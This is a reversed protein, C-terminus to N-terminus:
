RGFTSTNFRAWHPPRIYCFICWMCATIYAIVGKRLYGSSLYIMFVWNVYITNTYIPHVTMERVKRPMTLM